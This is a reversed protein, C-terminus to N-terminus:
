KMFIFAQWRGKQCLHRIPKWSPMTMFQHLYYGNWDMWVSHVDPHQSWPADINREQWNLTETVVMADVEFGHQLALYTRAHFDNTRSLDWQPHRRSLEITVDPFTPAWVKFPANQPRQAAYQSLTHDICSVFEHYTNWNWTPNKGLEDAQTLNTSIYFFTSAAILATLGSLPYLRRASNKFDEKSWNRWLKLLAIGAFTWVALHIYYVFWVEPKNHWLWATGIVWGAAPVLSIQASGSEQPTTQPFKGLQYARVFYGIVAKIFIAAAIFILTWVAVSTVYLILPWDNPSGLGQYISRIASSVSSLWPNPVALRQWQLMMQQFFLHPKLVVTFIWPALYITTKLGVDILRRPRYILVPLVAWLLHIANFHAYAGIALLAAIPDWLSHEYDKKTFWGLCLGTVLVIGALGILSEPRVLVSGWRLEPDM